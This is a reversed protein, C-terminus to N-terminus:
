NGATPAPAVIAEDPTNDLGNLDDSALLVAVGLTWSFRGNDAGKDNYPTFMMERAVEGSPTLLEFGVAERFAAM